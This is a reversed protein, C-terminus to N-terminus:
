LVIDCIDIGQRLSALADDRTPIFEQAIFGNFGTDVIAKIIAPYYLEQTEDIENRGPVGGTHYHGIYQSNLQITKIIDGEMIQMHYIDYLLKFAPSGIKEVLKVGWETHDCMYDPHNLRSNLLEMVIQVGEREALRVVPALGAACAELGAKDSINGRNGSFVIIQPVGKEAAQPIIARIDDQLKKHLSRDNWGKTIGLPSGNSIGVQLGRSLVTDWEDPNLLEISSLGMDKCRDAFEELPISNYCWKCVSHNVLGSLHTQTSSVDQLFDEKIKPEAINQQTKCSHLAVGTAAAALNNIVQRRKM